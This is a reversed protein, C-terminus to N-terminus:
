RKLSPDVEVDKDIPVPETVRLYSEQQKQEHIENAQAITASSSRFAEKMEQVSLIKEPGKKNKYLKFVKFEWDDQFSFSLHYGKGGEERILKTPHWFLYDDYKSAHPLKILTAKETETKVNQKNFYIKDWM